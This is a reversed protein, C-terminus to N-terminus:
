PIVEHEDVSVWDAGNRWVRASDGPVELEWRGRYHTVELVAAKAAEEEKAYVGRISQGEGNDGRLVIFVKM